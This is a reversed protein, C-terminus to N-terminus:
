DHRVFDTVSQAAIMRINQAACVKVIRLGAREFRFGGVPVHHGGGASKLQQRVIVLPPAPTPMRGARKVSRCASKSINKIQM